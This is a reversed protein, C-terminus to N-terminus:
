DRGYYHNYDRLVTELFHRADMESDIGAVEQVKSALKALLQPNDSRIGADLVEKLISVDRDSLQRIEPFVMEYEETTEMFITDVFTTVLKLKIVTTGAIMDGLRQGKNSIGLTIVSVLGPALFALTIWVDIIRLVWRVLYHSLGPSAGDLRITQLKMLWKGLTRGQFFVECILSYCVVPIMILVQLTRLTDSGWDEILADWLSAQQYAELIQTWIILYLFIAGLDILGSVIRDGLSAVPYELEINQTTPVLITNM